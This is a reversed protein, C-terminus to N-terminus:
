RQYNIIIIILLINEYLYMPIRIISFSPVWLGENYKITM